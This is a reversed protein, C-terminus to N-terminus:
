TTDRRYFAHNATVPFKWLVKTWSHPCFPYRRWNWQVDFLCHQFLAARLRRLSNGSTDEVCQISNRSPPFRSFTACRPRTSATPHTWARALAICSNYLARQGCWLARVVRMMCLAVCLFVILVCCVCCLKVGCSVVCCGWGRLLLLCGFNADETGHLTTGHTTALTATMTTVTHSAYTTANSAGGAPVAVLSPLSLFRKM